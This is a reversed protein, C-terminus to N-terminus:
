IALGFAAIADSYSHENFKALGNEYHDKATQTKGAATLLLVSLALCFYKKLDM